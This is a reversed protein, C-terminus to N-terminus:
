LQILLLCAVSDGRCFSFKGADRLGGVSGGCGSRFGDGLTVLSLLAPAATASAKTLAIAKPPSLQPSPPKCHCSRFPATAQPSKLLILGSIM